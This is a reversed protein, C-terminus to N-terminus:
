PQPTSEAAPSVGWSKSLRSTIFTSVLFALGLSLCIAGAIFWGEDRTSEPICLALFALGLFTLVVSRTIGFLIRNHISIRPGEEFGTVFKKGAPSQLFEALETASSFREILRTQMETQLKTRAQRSRANIWVIFAILAFSGTGLIIPIFVGVVGIM